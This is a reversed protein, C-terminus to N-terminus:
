PQKVAIDAIQKDFDDVKTAKGSLLDVKYLDPQATDSTRLSAYGTNSVTEAGVVKSQIDFGVIKSVRSPGRLNGMFQSHGPAQRDLFQVVRGPGDTISFVANSTDPLTKHNNTFALGTEGFRTDGHPNTTDTGLDHELNQGTDSIVWLTGSAAPDFDVGFHEGEPPITMTSVLTAAGTKTNLTYIGGLEGVGYFIDDQARYDIGILAVELGRSEQGSLGSVEAIYDDDDPDDVEFIRLSTGNDGLGLAEDSSLTTKGDAHAGTSYAVTFAIAVTAALAIISRQHIM